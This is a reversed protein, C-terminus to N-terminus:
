LTDLHRQARGTASKVETPVGAVVRPGTLQIVGTPCNLRDHGKESGMTYADSLQQFADWITPLVIRDEHSGPNRVPLLHPNVRKDAEQRGMHSLVHLFNLLDPLLVAQLHNPASVRHNM